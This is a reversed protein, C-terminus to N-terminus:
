NKDTITILPMRVTAILREISDGAEVIGPGPPCAPGHQQSTQEARELLLGIDGLLKKATLADQEPAYCLHRKGLKSKDVLSSNEVLYVCTRWRTLKLRLLQVRLAAREYDEGYQRGTDFYEFASMCSDFVTVLGACGLVLSAPDMTGLYIIVVRCGNIMPFLDEFSPCLSSFRGRSSDHRRSHEELLTSSLFAASRCWPRVVTALGCALRSAIPSDFSLACRRTDPERGCCRVKM